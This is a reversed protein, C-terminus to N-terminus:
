ARQCIGISSKHHSKSKESGPLSEPFMSSTSSVSIEKCSQSTAQMHGKPERHFVKESALDETTLQYWQAVQPYITTPPNPLKGSCYQLEHNSANNMGQRLSFPKKETKECMKSTRVAQLRCIRGNHYTNQKSCLVRSVM